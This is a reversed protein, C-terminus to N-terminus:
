QSHLTKTAIPFKCARRQVIGAVVDAAGSFISKVANLSKALEAIPTALQEMSSALFDAKMQITSFTDSFENGVSAVTEKLGALSNGIKNISSEIQDTSLQLEVIAVENDKM